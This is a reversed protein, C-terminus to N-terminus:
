SATKMPGNSFAKEKNGKNPTEAGTSLNVYARTHEDADDLGPPAPPSPDSGSRMSSSSGNTLDNEGAEFEQM